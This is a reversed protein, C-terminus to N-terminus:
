KDTSGTIKKVLNKFMDTLESGQDLDGLSVITKANKLNQSAEALRAMQPTLLLLEPNNKLMEVEEKEVELRMKSRKLEEQLRKNEISTEKEFEIDRLNFKKLELEHEMNMIEEDAKLKTGAANIRAKQNTKETEEMIRAEEKQRIADSIKKDTPELNQIALSLIEVGLKQTIADTNEHIHNYVKESSISDIDLQETFNKVLNQLIVELEKAAVSLVNKEWGGVKILQSINKISPSVTSTIKVNLAIKGKVEAEFSTTFSQTTVAIPLSFHQPYIKSQRLRVNGNSEYVVIQGPKRIRYEALIVVLIVALIIIIALEM